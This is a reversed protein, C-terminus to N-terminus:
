DPEHVRQLSLVTSRQGSHPLSSMVFIKCVCALVPAAKAATNTTYTTVRAERDMYRKTGEDVLPKQGPVGDSHKTISQSQPAMDAVILNGVYLSTNVDLLKLSASAHQPPLGRATAATTSQAFDMANQACCATLLVIPGRCRFAAM